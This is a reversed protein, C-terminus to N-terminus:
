PAADSEAASVATAAPAFGPRKGEAAPRAPGRLLGKVIEWRTAVSRKWRHVRPAKPPKPPPGDGARVPVARVRALAAELPMAALAELEPRIAAMHRVKDLYYHAVLDTSGTIVDGREQLLLSLGYQEIYPKPNWPYVEDVFRLWERVLPLHAPDLGIVGSNWMWADLRVRENRFRARAMRACLNRHLVSRDRADGLVYEREHLAARGPGVRELLRALPATFYTDADVLLVPEGPHAQLLHEMLKPKLRFLFAYPECWGRLLDPSLWEVRVADRLPAFDEVRDTFVHIEVPATGRWALASYAAYLAQARIEERGTALYALRGPM